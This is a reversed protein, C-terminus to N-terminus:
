SIRMAYYLNRYPPIIGDNSTNGLTHVHAAYTSTGSSWSHTHSDRAVAVTGYQPINSAASGLNDSTTDSLTHAHSGASDVNPNTHLHTAVGGTDDVDGNEDAGYIYVGRLDPTGNTGDCIQWGTGLASPEVALMIISGIPLALVGGTSRIYYLRHYPPLSSALESSNVNHSHVGKADSNGSVSHWHQYAASAVGVAQLYATFYASAASNASFTHTHNAEENTDPNTHQHTVGGALVESMAGSLAGLILADASEAYKEFGTPITTNYSLIIADEPLFFGKAQSTLLSILLNSRSM